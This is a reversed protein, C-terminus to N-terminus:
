AWWASSPTFSRIPTSYPRAEERPPMEVPMQRDTEAPTRREAPARKARAPAEEPAAPHEM